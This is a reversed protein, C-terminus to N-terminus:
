DRGGRLEKRNRMELAALGSTKYFFTICWLSYLGSALPPHYVGLRPCSHMLALSHQLPLSREQAPRSIRRFFSRTGFVRHPLQRFAFATLRKAFRGCSVHRVSLCQAGALLTPCSRKNVVLSVDHNGRPTCFRDSHTSDFLSGADAINSEEPAGPILRLTTNSCGKCTKLRASLVVSDPLRFCSM